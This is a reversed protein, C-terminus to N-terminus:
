HEDEDEDQEDRLAIAIAYDSVVRKLYLPPPLKVVDIYHAMAGRLEHVIRAIAEADDDKSQFGVVIELSVPLSANRDGMPPYKYLGRCMTVQGGDFSKEFMEVKEVLDPPDEGDRMVKEGRLTVTRYCSQGRKPQGYGLHRMVSYFFPPPGDPNVALFQKESAGYLYDFSTGDALETQVQKKSIVRLGIEGDVRVIRVHDWGYTVHDQGDMALPTQGIKPNTLYTWLSRTHTADIMVLPCDTRVSDIVSRVFQQFSARANGREETSAGELTAIRFLGERFETWPSMAGSPLMWTLFCRGSAVDLKTALPLFFRRKSFIVGGRGAQVFIGVISKPRQTPDSVHSVVDSLGDVRGAHAWILDRLASQVQQLRDNLNVRKGSPAPLLYQVTARGVSALVKRTVLKAVPDDLVTTGGSGDDSSGITMFQPVVMLCLVPRSASIQALQAPWGSAHWGGEWHGVRKQRSMRRKTGPEFPIPGHVGLPLPVIKTDVVDGTMVKAWIGAVRASDFGSASEHHFIMLLPKVDGYLTTM